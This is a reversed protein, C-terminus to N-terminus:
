SRSLWTEVSIECRLPSGRDYKDAHCISCICSRAQIRARSVNQFEGIAAGGQVHLVFTAMQLACADQGKWSVSKPACAPGIAAACGPRAKGIISGAAAHTVLLKMWFRHEGAINHHDQLM